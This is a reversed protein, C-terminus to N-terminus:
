ATTAAMFVLYAFAAFHVAVGVIEATTWLWFHVPKEHRHVADGKLIWHGRRQVLVLVLVDRLISSVLGLAVVLFLARGKLLWVHTMWGVAFTLAGVGLAAFSPAVMLAHARHLALAVRNWPLHPPQQSLGM